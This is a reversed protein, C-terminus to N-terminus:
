VSRTGFGSHRLCRRDIADPLIPRPQRREFEALEREARIADALPRMRRDWYGPEIGAAELILNRGSVSGSLWDADQDAVAVAVALAVVHLWFRRLRRLEGDAARGGGDEVKIEYLRAM